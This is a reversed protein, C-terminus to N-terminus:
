RRPGRDEGDRRLLYIVPVGSPDKMVPAFVTGGDGALALFQALMEPPVRSPCAAEETAICHEIRGGPLEAVCFHLFDLSTLFAAVPAEDAVPLRLEAVMDFANRLDVAYRDLASGVNTAIVLHKDRVDAMEQEVATAFTWASLAFVPLVAIGSLAAFLIYRLKM